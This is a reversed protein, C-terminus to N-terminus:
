VTTPDAIHLKLEVDLRAVFRDRNIRVVGQVRSFLNQPSM